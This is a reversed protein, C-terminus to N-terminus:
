RDKKFLVKITQLTRVQAQSCVRVQVSRRLGSPWFSLYASLNQRTKKYSHSPKRKSWSSAPCASLYLHKHHWGVLVTSIYMWAYCLTYIKVYFIVFKKRTAFNSLSLPLSLSREKLRQGTRDYGFCLCMLIERLIELVCGLVRTYRTCCLTMAPHRRLLVTNHREVVCWERYVSEELFCIM